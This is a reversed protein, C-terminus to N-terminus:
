SRVEKTSKEATKQLGQSKWVATPISIELHTQTKFNFQM